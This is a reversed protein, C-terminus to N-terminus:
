LLGLERAKNVAMVRSKVHLKAFINQNYGKVTSLALYLRESIQKNSLGRSILKLIELERRTLPEILDQNKRFKLSGQESFAKLFDAMEEDSESIAEAMEYEGKLIYNRIKLERISWVDPIPNPFYLEDAKKLSSLAEDYNGNESEILSNMTYWKHKWDPLSSCEGSKKSELLYQQAAEFERKMYSIRSLVLYLSANLLKLLASESTRELTDLCLQEATKMKGLEILLEANVVQVSLEAFKQNVRRFDDTAEHIKQYAKKLEGNRWLSFGLLMNIVGRRHFNMGHYEKLAKEAYAGSQKEDGTSAYYYAWASAITSPLMEFQELDSVKIEASTSPGDKKERYEEYMELAATLREKVGYFDGTDLKAWAYGTNLVPRNLIYREPIQKVLELWSDTQLTMDMKAWELEAMEGTLEYDEALIAQRIAQPIFGNERYWLCVREHMNKLESKDRESMSILRQRLMESFLHHYRYWRRENDLEFLFVNSKYLKELMMQSYGAQVNLLRDCLSGCLNELISTKLLFDVVDGSLNELVEELLYDMIFVNSETFGEIFGRQDAQDRLSIASLQLGSIWGETRTELRKILEPSLEIGMTDSFFHESEEHNFRLAEARIEIMENGARMKSLPFDPDERTIIIMQLNPPRNELLFRMFSVIEPNSILHFDDLVLLINESFSFIENVITSSIFDLKTPGLSYILEEADPMFDGFVRKLAETFYLLFRKLEDDSKELSLWAPSLGSDQIIQCAVTTKGFGAPASILILKKDTSDRVRHLIRRRSISKLNRVPVTLKTQLIPITM